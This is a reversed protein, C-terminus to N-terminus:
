CKPWNAIIITSQSRNMCSINPLHVYRVVFTMAVKSEVAPFLNRTQMFFDCSYMLSVCIHFTNVEVVM